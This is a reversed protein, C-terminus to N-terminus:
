LVQMVKAFSGKGVVKLLEFDNIKLSPQRTEVFQLGIRFSGTGYQMNNWEIGVQGLTKDTEARVVAAKERDKKSLKPYDVQLQAQEFRPNIRCTGLFIDESRGSQPSAKPNRIYLSINLVTVRSVDFKYQTSEGGWIPNELTGSVANIFVQQKDFDVLAYPLYRSSYRGHISPVANIAGTGSQPRGGAYSRVYSGSTAVSNPSPRM